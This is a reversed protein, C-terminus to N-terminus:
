HYEAAVGLVHYMTWGSVNDDVDMMMYSTLLTFCGWSGAIYIVSWSWNLFMLYMCQAFGILVPDKHLIMEGLGVCMDVVMMLLVYLGSFLTGAMLWYGLLLISGASVIFLVRFLTENLWLAGYVSSHLFLIPKIITLSYVLWLVFRLYYDILMMLIFALSRDKFLCVSGVYFVWDFISEYLGLPPKIFWILM